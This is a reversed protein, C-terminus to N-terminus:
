SLERDEPMPVGGEMLARARLASSTLRSLEAAMRDTQGELAKTSDIGKRFTELVRESDGSLRLAALLATLGKLDVAMLRHAKLGEMWEANALCDRYHGADPLFLFGASAQIGDLARSLVGLAEKMENGQLPKGSMGVQLVPMRGLPTKIFQVGNEGPGFDTAGLYIGLWEPLSRDAAKPEFSRELVDRVLRLNKIGQPLRGAELRLELLENQAASLPQEAEAVLGEIRQQSEALWKEALRLAPQAEPGTRRAASGQSLRSFTLVAAGWFVFGAGALGLLFYLNM